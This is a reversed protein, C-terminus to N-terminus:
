FKVSLLTSMTKIFSVFEEVKDDVVEKGEATIRYYKRTRKGSMVVETKLLGRKEMRHLTPYLAGETLTIKKGSLEKVRQVIEYGYMKGYNELVKLVITQLNGKLLESSHNMGAFM